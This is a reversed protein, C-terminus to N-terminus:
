KTDEQERTPRQKVEVVPVLLGVSIVVTDELISSVNGPREKERHSVSSTFVRVYQASPM